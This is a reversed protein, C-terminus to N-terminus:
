GIVYSQRDTSDGSVSNINLDDLIPLLGGLLLREFLKSFAVLLSIPRYSSIGNELKNPKPMM